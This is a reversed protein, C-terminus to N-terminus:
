SANYRYSVNAKFNHLWTSILPRQLLQQTEGKEVEKYKRQRMRENEELIEKLVVDHM